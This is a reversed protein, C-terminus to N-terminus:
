PGRPKASGKTDLRESSKTVHSGQAVDYNLDPENMPGGAGVDEEDRGGHVFDPVEDLVV